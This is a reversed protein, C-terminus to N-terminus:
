SAPSDLWPRYLSRDYRAASLLDEMEVVLAEHMDSDAELLSDVDKRSAARRVIRKATKCEDFPQPPTPSLANEPRPFIPECRLAISVLDECPAGKDVRYGLTSALVM